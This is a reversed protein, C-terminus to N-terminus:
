EESYNKSESNSLEHGRSISQHLDIPALEEEVRVSASMVVKVSNIIKITVATMRTINSMGKVLEEDSLGPTGALFRMKAASKAKIEADVKEPEVKVRLELIDQSTLGEILEEVFDQKEM